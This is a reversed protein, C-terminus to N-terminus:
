GQAPGFRPAPLPPAVAAPREELLALAETVGRALQPDEGAEWANPPLPVEIDPDVGYNEISWDKGEFWSAYKPQTVVTGDVLDFRGDIGIVGGWTRTGIVPGIPMSQAVANVIDGDSGADQNTVLVVPGRPAYAPYTGPTQGRPYDWSLVRRALRD